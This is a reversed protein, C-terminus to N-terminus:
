AGYRKVQYTSELTRAIQGGKRINSVFINIIREGDTNDQQEVQGAKEANEYLNVTVAGGGNVAQRALDATQKRSTVTAPGQILEPGYEGVIGLQGAGIRGGNDHMTVSNLQSIISGTLAIASAYQGLKAVWSVQSPDSLAQTWALIANVTASAVTFAKQTAFLAKYTGSAESMGSSFDGMASGLDSLADAFELAKKKDDKSLFDNKESKIESLEKEFDATLQNRASLFEEESVLADTHYQELQELKVAYQDRLDQEENGALQHLFDSAEQRQEKLQKAYDEELIQQANLYEAETATKSALFKKDLEALAQEHELKLKYISSYGDAQIKLVSTYYTGWDDKAQKSTSTKKSGSGSGTEKFKIPKFVESSPANQGLEKLQRAYDAELIQQARLYEAKYAGKSALSKKKLEYLAQEYELKLKLKSTREKLSNKIRKDAKAVDDWQFQIAKNWLKSTEMMEDAAQNLTKNYSANAKSLDGTAFLTGLWNGAASTGGKLADWAMGAPKAIYESFGIRCFKFFHTFYKAINELGEKANDGSDSFFTGVYDTADSLTSKLAETVNGFSSSLESFFESFYPQNENLWATLGDLADAGERISDALLQGFGTEAIARTFDGWANDAQNLAGTMGGQLYDLVGENEEGLEKYYEMLADSNKEIEKTVGKYTLAMATGTDKATIGLKEFGENKGHLADTFSKGVEDISIGTAYAIQSFTKLREATVEIGNKRLELAVNKLNDFPQITDRAAQQLLEFQARADKLDGTATIFSAIGKETAQLEKSIAGTLAGAAIGAIAAKWASGISAFSQAMGKTASKTDKKIGQLKKKYKETSMDVKTLISNVVAM